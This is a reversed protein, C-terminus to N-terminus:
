PRVQGLSGWFGSSTVSRPDRAPPAIRAHARTLAEVPPRDVRGLFSLRNRPSPYRGRAATASASRGTGYRCSRRCIGGTRTCGFAPGTTLQLREESGCESAQSCGQGAPSLDHIGFRSNRIMACLKEVRVEASDPGGVASCACMQPHCHWRTCSNGTGLMLPVNLFVHQGHQAM